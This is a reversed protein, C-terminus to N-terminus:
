TRGEQGINDKQRPLPVVAKGAAGPAGDTATTAAVMITTKAQPTRHSISRKM